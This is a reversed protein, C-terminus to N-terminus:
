CLNCLHLVMLSKGHSKGLVGHFVWTVCQPPSQPGAKGLCLCLVLLMPITILTAKYTYKGMPQHCKPFNLNCYYLFTSKPLASLFSFKPSQFIPPHVVGPLLHAWSGFLALKTRESFKFGSHLCTLQPCNSSIWGSMPSLVDAVSSTGSGKDQWRM